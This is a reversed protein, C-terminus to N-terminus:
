ASVLVWTLMEGAVEDVLACSSHHRESQEVVVAKEKLEGPM